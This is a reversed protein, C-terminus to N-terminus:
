LYFLLPCMKIHKKLSLIADGLKEDSILCRKGYMPDVIVIQKSTAKELIIFHSAHSYDGLYHDDVHCIVPQELLLEKILSLTIKRHYINFHNTDNLSEMLIGTFYLNDVVINIKRKYSKFFEKTIGVVYFPYTRKMGSLLIQVEDKETFNIGYKEQLLMLFDAALCGHSLSQAYPLIEKAM